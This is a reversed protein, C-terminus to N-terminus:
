NARVGGNRAESDCKRLCEPIGFTYLPLGVNVVAVAPGVIVTFLSAATALPNMLLPPTFDKVTDEFGLYHCFPPTSIIILTLGCLM